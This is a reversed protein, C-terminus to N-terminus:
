LAIRQGACPARQRVVTRTSRALRHHRSPASLSDSRYWVLRSAAPRGACPLAPCTGGTGLQSVQCTRSNQRAFPPLASLLPDADPPVGAAHGARRAGAAARHDGSTRLPPAIARSLTGGLPPDDGAARRLVFRQRYRDAPRRYSSAARTGVSAVPRLPRNRA